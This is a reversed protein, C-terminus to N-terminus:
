PFFSHFYLFISSKETSSKYADYNMKSRMVKSTIWTDLYITFYLFRSLFVCFFAFGFHVLNHVKDNWYHIKLSFRFVISVLGSFFSKSISILYHSKSIDFFHRKGSVSETRNRRQNKKLFFKWLWFLGFCFFLCLLLRFSFFVLLWTYFEESITYIIWNSITTNVKDSTM